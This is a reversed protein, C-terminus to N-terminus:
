RFRGCTVQTRTTQSRGPLVGRQARARQKWPNLSTWPPIGALCPHGRSTRTGPPHLPAGFPGMKVLPTGFLVPRCRSISPTQNTRATVSRFSALLWFDKQCPREFSRGKKNQKDLILYMQGRIRRYFLRFNTLPAPLPLRVGTAIKSPDLIAVIRYGCFIIELM